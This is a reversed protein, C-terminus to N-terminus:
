GTSASAAGRGCRRASTTCRSSAARRLAEELGLNFDPADVGIFLDPPEAILRRRLENRIRLISPLQRLVEVYGRVALSESPYWPEFGAAQM